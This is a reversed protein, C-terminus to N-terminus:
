RVTMSKHRHLAVLYAMLALILAVTVGLLVTDVIGRIATIHSNGALTLAAVLCEGAGSVLLWLGALAGVVTNRNTWRWGQALRRVLAIGVGVQALGFLASVGLALTFGALIM